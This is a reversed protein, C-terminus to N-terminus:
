VSPWWSALSGQQEPRNRWCCATALEIQPRGQMCSLYQTSEGRLRPSLLRVKQSLALSGNARHRRNPTRAPRLCLPLLAYAGGCRFGFPPGNRPRPEVFQRDSRQSYERHGSCGSLAGPYKNGDDEVPCCSAGFSSHHEATASCAKVDGAGVSLAPGSAPSLQAFFGDLWHFPPMVRYRHTHYTCVRVLVDGLNRRSITAPMHLARYLLVGLSCIDFAILRQGRM